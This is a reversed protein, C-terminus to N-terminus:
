AQVIPLRCLCMLLQQCVLVLLMQLSLSCAHSLLAAFGACEALSSRVSFQKDQRRAALSSPALRPREFSRRLNKLAPLQFNGIPTMHVLGTRMEVLGSPLSKGTLAKFLRAMLGEVRAKQGEKGRPQPEIPGLSTGLARMVDTM